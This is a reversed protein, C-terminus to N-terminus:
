VTQSHALTNPASSHKLHHLSLEAWCKHRSSRYVPLMVSPRWPYLSLQRLLIGKALKRIFTHLFDSGLRSLTCFPSLFFVSVLHDTCCRAGKRPLNPYLLLYNNAKRVGKRFRCSLAPNDKVSKHRGKERNRHTRVMM